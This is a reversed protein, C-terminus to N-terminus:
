AIHQTLTRLYTDVSTWSAMMPSAPHREDTGTRRTHEIAMIDAAFVKMTKGRRQVLRRWAPEIALWDTEWTWTWLLREVQDDSLMGDHQTTSTVYAACEVAELQAWAHVDSHELIRDRYLFFRADTFLVFALAAVDVWAATTTDQTTHQFQRCLPVLWKTSAAMGVAGSSLLVPVSPKDQAHSQCVQVVLRGVVEEEEEDEECDEEEENTADHLEVQKRRQVVEVSVVGYPRQRLADTVSVHAVREGIQMHIAYTQLFLTMPGDIRVPFHRTPGQIPVYVHKGRQSQGPIMLMDVTVHQFGLFSYVLSMIPPRRGGGNSNRLRGDNSMPPPSHQDRATTSASILLSLVTVQFEVDEVLHSSAHVVAHDLFSGAAPMGNPTEDRETVAHEHRPQSSAENSKALHTRRPRQKVSGRTATMAMNSEMTTRNNRQLKNTSHAQWYAVELAHHAQMQNLEDLLDDNLAKLVTVKHDAERLLQLMSSIQSPTIQQNNRTEFTIGSSPSEHPELVDDDLVGVVHPNSTACKTVHALAAVLLENSPDQLLTVQLAMRNYQLQLEDRELRIAAEASGLEHVQAEMSRLRRKLAANQREIVQKHHTENDLQAALVSAHGEVDALQVLLKQVTSQDGFLPRSTLTDM